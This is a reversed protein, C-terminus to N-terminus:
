LLQLIMFGITIAVTFSALTGILVYETIRIEKAKNLEGFRFISKAALMFGVGELNKTFIFTLILTREFYGIWKGADPLGESDSDNPTWRKIFLTLFVSTPKLVLLYAMIICWFSNNNLLNILRELLIFNNNYLIIWLTFIVGIHIAQDILFTKMKEELYTSKIYDMVFHSIFISVPIIWNNWETAFLYAMAAHICSHLTLFGYKTYGKEKKNKCVKNTQLVFDSLIHAFLLKLLLIENM